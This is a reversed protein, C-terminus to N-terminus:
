AKLERVRIELELRIKQMISKKPIYAFIKTEFEELLQKV